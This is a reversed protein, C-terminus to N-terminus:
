ESKYSVLTQLEKTIKQQWLLQAEKNISNNTEADYENQRVALQENISKQLSELDNKITKSVKLQGLQQRFKRAYLETIDYHLQEHSLIYDNVLEPKFWSEEPFFCAEVKTKFSVAKFANQKIYYEFNIGSATIAVAKLSQNAEGKFDNWSLKYSERWTIIPEDKQVCIFCCFLIIIRSM